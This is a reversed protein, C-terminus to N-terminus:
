RATRTHGFNNRYWTSAPFPHDGSKANSVLKFSAVLSFAELTKQGQTYADFTQRADLGPQSYSADLLYLVKTRWIRVIEGGVLGLSCWSPALSGTGNDWSATVAQRHEHTTTIQALARQKVHSNRERNVHM